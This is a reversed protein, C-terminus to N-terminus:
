RSAHRKAFMALAILTWLQRSNDQRGASHAALLGKAYAEDIIGLSRMPSASISEKFFDLFRPQLFWQALPPSFGTKKANLVSM